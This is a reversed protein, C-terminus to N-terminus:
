RHLTVRNNRGTRLRADHRYGVPTQAARQLYKHEAVTTALAEQRKPITCRAQLAGGNSKGVPAGAPEAWADADGVVRLACTGM